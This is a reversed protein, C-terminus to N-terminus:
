ANRIRGSPIRSPESIASVKASGLAHDIDLDFVRPRLVSSGYDELYEVSGSSVYRGSVRISLGEPSLAVRHRDSFANSIEVYSEGSEVVSGWSRRACFAKGNPLSWCMSERDKGIGSVIRGSRDALVLEDGFDIALGSGSASVRARSADAWPYLHEVVGARAALIRSGHVIVPFRDLIGAIRM